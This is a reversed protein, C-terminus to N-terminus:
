DPIRHPGSVAWIRPQGQLQLRIARHVHGVRPPWQTKSHLDPFAHM